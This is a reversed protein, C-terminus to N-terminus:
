QLMYSVLQVNDLAICYLLFLASVIFPRGYTIADAKGAKLAAEGSELTYNTNTLISNKFIPRWSEVPIIEGGHRV